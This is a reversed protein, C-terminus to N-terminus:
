AGEHNLAFNLEQRLLETFRGQARQYYREFIPNSQEEIPLRVVEIPLRERGKRRFVNLHESKMAASFAGDFQHKGVRTGRRNQKAKGIYRVQVPNLGFWVSVAKEGDKLYFTHQFRVTLVKIPLKLERGLERKSHTELWRATKKLARDIAKQIQPVSAMLQAELYALEQDLQLNLQLM